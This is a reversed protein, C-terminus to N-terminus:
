NEALAHMKSVLSYYDEWALFRAAEMSGVVANIELFYREKLRLEREMIQLLDNGLRKALAPTFDAADGAFLGYVSYAEGLLADCEEEYQRYANWFLEAKKGAPLALAAGITRHKAETVKDAPLASANFRYTKWETKAYIDASELLDMMAETQLFQLAVVGNLAAGVEQYYKKKLQLEDNRQTLLKWGNEFAEQPSLSANTRALDELSRYTESYVKSADTLYKEYIPWFAKEHWEALRVSSKVVTMRDTGSVTILSLTNKPRQTFGAVTLLCFIVTFSFSNMKIRVSIRSVHRLVKPIM